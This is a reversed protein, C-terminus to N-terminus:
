GARQGPRRLHLSRQGTTSIAAEPHRISEHVLMELFDFAQEKRGPISLAEPTDASAGSPVQMAVAVRLSTYDLDHDLMGVGILSVPEQDVLNAM